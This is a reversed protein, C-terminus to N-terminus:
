EFVLNVQVDAVALNVTAEIHKLQEWPQNGTLKVNVYYTCPSIRILIGAKVFESIIKTVYTSSLKLVDALVAKQATNLSVIYNHQQENLNVYQMHLFIQQLVPAYCVNLGYVLLILSVYTHLEKNLQNNM